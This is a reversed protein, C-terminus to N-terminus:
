YNVERNLWEVLASTEKQMEADNLQLNESDVNGFQFNSIQIGNKIHILTPIWEINYKEKINNYREIDKSDANERIAKTRYEKLDLYYVKESDRGINQELIPKFIQCDQCDERGIYLIFDKSENELDVLKKLNINILGKKNEIETTEIQSKWEYRRKLILLFLTCIIIFLIIKRTKKM